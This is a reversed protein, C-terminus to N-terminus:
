CTEYAVKLIRSHGAISNRACPSDDYLNRECEFTDSIIGTSTANRLPKFAAIADGTRDGAGSKM